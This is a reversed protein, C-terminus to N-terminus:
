RMWSRIGAIRLGASYSRHSPSSGSGWSRRTGNGLSSIAMHGIEFRTFEGSLSSSCSNSWIGSKAASCNGATGVQLWEFLALSSASRLSGVLSAADELHGYHRM